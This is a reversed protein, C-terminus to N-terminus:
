RDPNAGSTQVASRRRACASLWPRQAAIKAWDIAERQTPTVVSARDSGPKRVAYDGEGPRREIFVRKDTM